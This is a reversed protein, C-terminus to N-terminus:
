TILTFMYINHYGAIILLNIVAPVVNRDVIVISRAIRPLSTITSYIVMKNDLICPVICVTTIRNAILMGTVGFISRVEM